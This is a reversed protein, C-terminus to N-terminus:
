APGGDNLDCNAASPPTATGPEAVGGQVAANLVPERPFNLSTFEIMM